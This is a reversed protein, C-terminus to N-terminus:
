RLWGAYMESVTGSGGGGGQPRAGQIEFLDMRKEIVKVADAFGGVTSRIDTLATKLEALEM